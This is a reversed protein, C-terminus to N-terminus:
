SDLCARIQLRTYRRLAIELRGAYASDAVIPVISRILDVGGDRDQVSGNVDARFPRSRM